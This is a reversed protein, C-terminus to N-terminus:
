EEKLCWVQCRTGPSCKCPMGRQELYTALRKVNSEVDGKVQATDFGFWHWGDEHSWGNCSLQM